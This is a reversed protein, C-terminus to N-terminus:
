CCPEVAVKCGPVDNKQAEVGGSEDAVGEGWSDDCGAEGGSLIGPRPRLECVVEGRLRSHRESDM